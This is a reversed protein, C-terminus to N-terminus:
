PYAEVTPVVPAPYGSPVTPAPTALPIGDQILRMNYFQAGAERSGISINLTDGQYAPIVLDGESQSGAIFTHFSDEQDWEIVKSELAESNRSYALYFSDSETDFSTATMEVKYNASEDALFCFAVTDEENFTPNDVLSVISYYLDVRGDEDNQGFQAFRNQDTQVEFAQSMGIMDAQGAWTWPLVCPSENIVVSGALSPFMAEFFRSGLIEAGADNLHIGDVTHPGAETLIEGPDIGTSGDVVVIPSLNTSHTSAFQAIEANFEALLDSPTDAKGHIQSIYFVTQPNASRFQQIIGFHDGNLDGLDNIHNPIHGNTGLHILVVDPVFVDAWGQETMTQLYFDAQWGTYSGHHYDWDDTVTSAFRVAKNASTVPGIMDFNVGALTMSNVLHYRYSSNQTEGRTISDGLPYIKTPRDPFTPFVGTSTNPDQTATPQPEPTNTVTPLPTETAAPIPTSTPPQTETPLPEATATAVPQSTETPVPTETALPFPTGDFYHGVLQMGQVYSFEENFTVGECDDCVIYVRDGPDIYLVNGNLDGTVELIDARVPQFFLATISLLLLTAMLSGCVVVFTKRM